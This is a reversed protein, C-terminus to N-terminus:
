DFKKKFIWKCLIVTGHDPTDVEELAVHEEFSALEEEM